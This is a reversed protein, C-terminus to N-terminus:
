ESAKTVIDLLEIEFILTSNGPMGQNDRAGYALDSPVYINWKSGVAMMPVAEQWGKIVGNVDFEAPEGREVSSDFVKGDIFTGTYHCKVKDELSPKAGTGETVVEYQLGSPLTVVGEKTSNEALFAQGAALTNQAAADTKKFAYAQLIMEAEDFPILLDTSSDGQDRIGAFFIDIDLDDGFNTANNDAILCGIAYSMSDHADLLEIDGAAGNGSNCATLAMTSMALGLILKKM